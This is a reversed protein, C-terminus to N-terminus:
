DVGISDPDISKKIVDWGFGKQALFRGLKQYVEQRPLNKYRKIKKEVLRKALDLENSIPFHFNSIQADILEKNIGKQLLERKILNVSRPKYNLRSEIWWKTFEEDNVFKHEKLKIIVQEIIQETNETTATKKNRIEKLKDRIEKESRPRFSLFRLAKNYFKEFEDM